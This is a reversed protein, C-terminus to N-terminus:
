LWRSCLVAEDWDLDVLTGKAEAVESMEEALEDDDLMDTLADDAKSSRTKKLVAAGAGVVAAGAAVRPGVFAAAATGALRVASAAPLVMHTQSAGRTTSDTSPHALPVVFGATPQLLALSLVILSTTMM